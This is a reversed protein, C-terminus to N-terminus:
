YAPRCTEPDTYTSRATFRLLLGAVLPLVLARAPWPHRAFAGLFILFILAGAVRSIWKKTASVEGLSAWGFVVLLAAGGAVFIVSRLPRTAAREWDFGILAATVTAFHIAHATLFALTARAPTLANWFRRLGPVALVLSFWLSSVRATNRAAAHAGAANWGWSRLTFAAVLISALAVAPFLMRDRLNVNERALVPSNMADERM